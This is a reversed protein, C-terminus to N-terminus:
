ESIIIYRNEASFLAERLEGVIITTRGPPVMSKSPSATGIGVVISYQSLAGGIGYISALGAGKAAPSQSVAVGDGTIAVRWGNDQLATVIKLKSEPSM